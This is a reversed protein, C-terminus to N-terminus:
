VQFEIYAFGKPHGTKKDCVITIREVQGCAEFHALLEEPTAAYDVQGVYVSFGDRKAAEEKAKAPDLEEKKAEGTGSKQNELDETEKAIKAAEAEMRAIEAQLKELDEDDEAEEEAAPAAAEAPPKEEKESM